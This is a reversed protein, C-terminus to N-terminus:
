CPKQRRKAARKGARALRRGDVVVRLYVIFLNSVDHTQGYSNTVSTKADAGMRATGLEHISWGETLPERRM